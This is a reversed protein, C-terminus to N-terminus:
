SGGGVRGLVTPDAPGDATGVNGSLNERSKSTKTSIEKYPLPSSLLPNSAFASKPSANAESNSSASAETQKSASAENAEGRRVEGSRIGGARGAARRAERRAEVEAAGLQYLEYEHIRYGGDVRDWLGVAVLKAADRKANIGPYLLAVKPEPIFGDRAPQRNCYCLGCVWLWCAMPGAALQKRHDPANDDISVWSM